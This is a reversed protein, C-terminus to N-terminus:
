RGSAAGEGRSDFAGTLVKTESDYGVAKVNATWSPEVNHGKSKLAELLEHPTRDADIYLMNPLIQHHVRISQIATDVNTKRFLYRYITQFTASIIRPGGSAGVALVPRNDKLVITPTMSSLPRRGPSVENRQGQILGFMNPENPITTFDDMENNLVIGSKATTVGSGFRGNLTVTMAITNGQSDIISFHTTEKSEPTPTWNFNPEVKSASNKRIRQAMKNLSKEKLLDSINNLEEKDGLSPRFQFGQKLTEAILHFERASLAMPAESALVKQLVGFAIAMVIGGSSPLPMSYIDHGHYSFMIPKLWRSEYNKLDERTIVGGAKEVSTVLDDAISGSYFGDRGKKSILRLTKSFDRQKIVTGPKSLLSPDKSSIENLGLVFKKTASDLENFAGQTAEYWETTVAFGREAEDAALSWIERWGLKGFRRHLKWLGDVIGPVAIAAGGTKSSKKSEVFFSPHTKSPAVERFDISGIAEGIKFVAFGGGGISANYPTSIALGLEVAIAIDAINGGRDYVKLGLDNAFKSGSSIMIKQSSVPLALASQSFAFLCFNFTLFFCFNFALIEAKELLYPKM